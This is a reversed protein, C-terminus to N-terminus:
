LNLQYSCISCKSRLWYASFRYQEILVAT